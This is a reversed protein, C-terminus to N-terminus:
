DLPIHDMYNTTRGPLRVTLGDLEPSLLIQCSLRSADPDSDYEAALELMDLEFDELESLKKRDAENPVFVHCTSCQCNGDCAGEM